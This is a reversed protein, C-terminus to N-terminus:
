SRKVLHTGQVAWAQWNQGDDQSIYWTKADEIRLGYEEPLGLGLYGSLVEEPVSCTSGIRTVNESSPAENIWWIKTRPRPAPPLQGFGSKNESDRAADLDVEKLTRQITLVDTAALEASLNLNKGM